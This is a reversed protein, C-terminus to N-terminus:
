NAAIDDGLRRRHRQVTTRHVGLLRAAGSISGAQQIADGVAEATIERPLEGLQRLWLLDDRCHEFTIVDAGESEILLRQITGNLQRLNYPWPAKQLAEVLMPDLDPATPAKSIKALDAVCQKALEPIDARRERLPPLRIRLHMLRAFLDPLFAGLGVLQDLPQNTAAIVRVDVHVDRDTGIPRIEGYEIAHLLRQQVGLTAKAIEDLLLTGNNAAAFAGARSMRADTYAGAVHGFLESGALSDDLTALVVQQFPKDARPSLAHMLRALLTKGTGIEGELLVTAHDHKAFRQLLVRAKTFSASTFREIDRLIEVPSRDSGPARVPYTRKAM